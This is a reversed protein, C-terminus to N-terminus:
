LVWQPQEGYTVELILCMSFEMQICVQIEESVFASM